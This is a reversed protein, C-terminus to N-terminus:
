LLTRAPRNADGSGKGNAREMIGLVETALMNFRLAEPSLAGPLFALPLGKRSAAAFVEQRPIAADLVGPLGSWVTELIDLANGKQKEVMTPLIGLLRLGPNGQTRLHEVLKLIQTVSRLALNETQFPLLLWDSTTLACQTIAGLGSPTDLITIVDSGEVAALLGALREPRCLEQEFALMDKPSLSGRALLRLTPLKTQILVDPEPFGRLLIEALGTLASDKRGLSHGIGGQPDLDVLLVHHGLEALSVALNLSTTTKGVGGKPSAVCIRRSM